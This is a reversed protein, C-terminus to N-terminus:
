SVVLKVVGITVLLHRLYGLKFRGSLKQKLTEVARERKLKVSRVLPGGFVELM